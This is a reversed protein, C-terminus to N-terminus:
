SVTAPAAADNVPAKKWTSTFEPFAKVVLEYTIGEWPLYKDKVACILRADDSHASELLNVFRTEVAVQAMKAAGPYGAIFPLYRQRLLYNRLFGENEGNLLKAQPPVGQPLRFKIYPNFALDLIIMFFKDSNAKRLIKLKDKEYREAHIMDSFKKLESSLTPVAV